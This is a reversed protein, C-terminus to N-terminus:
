GLRHRRGLRGPPVQKQRRWSNFTQVTYSLSLLMIGGGLVYLLWPGGTPRPPQGHVVYTVSEAGRLQLWLGLGIFGLGVLQPPFIGLLQRWAPVRPTWDCGERITRLLSM